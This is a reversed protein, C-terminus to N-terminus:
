DPPANEWLSAMAAGFNRAIRAEDAHQGHTMVRRGDVYVSTLVPADAAFVWADLAHSPMVGLLGTAHPDLVLADAREGAM